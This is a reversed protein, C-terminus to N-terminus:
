RPIMERRDGSVSDALDSIEWFRDLTETLRPPPLVDDPCLHRTVRTAARVPYAERGALAPRVGKAAMDQISYISLIERGTLRFHLPSTRATGELVVREAREEMVAKVAAVVRGVPAAAERVVRIVIVIPVTAAEGERPVLVALAERAEREAKGARGVMLTFITPERQKPLSTTKPEPTMGGREKDEREARLAPAAMIVLSDREVMLIEAFEM